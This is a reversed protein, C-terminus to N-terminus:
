PNVKKDELVALMLCSYCALDLMTDYTSEDVVKQEHDDKILNGLRMMKDNMRTLLGHEAKIGYSEISKFNRLVDGDGGSYDQNKSKITRVCYDFYGEIFLHLQEKTM